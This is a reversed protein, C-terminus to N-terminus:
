KGWGQERFYKKRKEPDAYYKINSERKERLGLAKLMQAKQGRSHIWTGQPREKTCLNEDFYPEHVDSVDPAADLRIAGCRDCTDYFSQREKDWYARINYANENKCTRCIM